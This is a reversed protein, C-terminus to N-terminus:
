NLERILMVDTCIILNSMRDTITLLLLGLNPHGRNYTDPYPRCLYIFVFYNKLLIYEYFILIYYKDVLFRDLTKM